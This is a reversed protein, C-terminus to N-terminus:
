SLVKFHSMYCITNSSFNIESRHLVEMLLFNSVLLIHAIMLPLFYLLKPLKMLNVLEVWPLLRLIDKWEENFKKALSTDILGPSIANVRIQRDKLDVTWCRGTFFVYAGETVFRQVTTLGIGESGTIKGDLKEMQKSVSTLKKKRIIQLSYIRIQMTM